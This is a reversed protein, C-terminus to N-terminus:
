ALNRPIVREFRRERRFTGGVEEAVLDLRVHYSTADSRVELTAETHVDVEPWTIRYAARGTAWAAAPDAKSVGVAGDYIEEVQAGFPAQYRAGYSTVARAEGSVQDDEFRWVM